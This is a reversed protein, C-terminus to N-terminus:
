LQVPLQRIGERLLETARSMGQAPTVASDGSATEATVQMFIYTDHSDVMAKRFAKYSKLQEPSIENAKLVAQTQLDLVPM